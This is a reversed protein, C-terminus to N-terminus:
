SSFIKTFCKWFTDNPISDLKEEKQHIERVNWTAYETIWTQKVIKNGYNAM